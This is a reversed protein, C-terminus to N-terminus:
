RSPSARPLHRLHLVRQLLESSPSTLHVVPVRPPLFTSPAVVDKTMTVRSKLVGLYSNTTGNLSLGTEEKFVVDHVYSTWTSSNMFPVHVNDVGLSAIGKISTGPITINGWPNAQGLNQLYLDLTIPEIRVPLAIKLNIKSMLSLQVSNARPQMVAASVLVLSSKDVVLQSIAPIVILFSNPMNTSPEGRMLM